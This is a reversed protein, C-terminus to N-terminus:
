YRICVTAMYQKTVGLQNSIGDVLDRKIMRDPISFFLNDELLLQKVTVDKLLDHLRTSEKTNKLIFLHMIGSDFYHILLKNNLIYYSKLTPDKIFDEFIRMATIMEGTNKYKFSEEIKYPNLKKIIFNETKVKLSVGNKNRVSTVGKSDSNKHSIIALEFFIRHGNRDYRKEFFINKNDNILKEYKPLVTRYRRAGYLKRYRKGAKYIIIKYHPPYLAWNAV